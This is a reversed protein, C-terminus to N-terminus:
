SCRSAGYEWCLICVFGERVGQLEMSGVCAARSVLIVLVVRQYMIVVFHVGKDGWDGLAFGDM